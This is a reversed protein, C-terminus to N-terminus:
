SGLAHKFFLYHVFPYFFSYDEMFLHPFFRICFRWSILSVSQSRMLPIIGGSFVPLPLGDFDFRTM